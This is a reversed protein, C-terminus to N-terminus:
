RVGAAGALAVRVVGGAAVLPVPELHHVTGDLGRGAGRVDYRGGCGACALATGDLSAAELSAGCAPCRDRYAYRDDGARCLALREGAVERVVVAGAALEDLAPVECWESRPGPGAISTLPVFGAPAAPAEDGGEVEIGTVDPVEDLIAQEIALRITAASSPCGQCSGELRLRVAGDAADLVRVGGGHSGLYPRVGDLARQVRREFPVPHLGHLLLMGGVAPDEAMREAVEPGVLEVLRELADGHLELLASFAEGAIERAHEDPLERLERVLADVRRVRRELERRAGTHAATM